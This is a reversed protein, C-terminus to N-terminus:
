YRSGSLRRRLLSRDGLFIAKLIPTHAEGGFRRLLLPAEEVARHLEDSVHKELCVALKRDRGDNQQFLALMVTSATYSVAELRRIVAKIEIALAEPMNWRKKRLKKRPRVAKRQAV